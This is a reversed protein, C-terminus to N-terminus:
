RLFNCRGGHIQLAYFFRSPYGKKMLVRVLITKIAEESRYQLMQSYNMHLISLYMRNNYTLGYKHCCNTFLFKVNNILIQITRERERM